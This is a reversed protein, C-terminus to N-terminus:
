IIQLKNLRCKKIKIMLNLFQHINDINLLYDMTSKDIINTWCGSSFVEKLESLLPCSYTSLEDNLERLRIFPVRYCNGGGDNSNVCPDYVYKSDDFYVNFYHNLEVCEDFTLIDSCEVYRLEYENQDKDTVLVIGRWYHIEM